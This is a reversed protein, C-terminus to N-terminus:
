FQHELSSTRDPKANRRIWYGEEGAPHVLVNRRALKM